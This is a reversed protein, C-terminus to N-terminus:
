LDLRAPPRRERAPRASTTAPLGPSPTRSAPPPPTTSTTARAAPPRGRRPPAAPAAAATGTHPKLRDVSVTQQQNGINLRFFKPGKEVVQYPGSYPAVLPGGQCGRRVYVLEAERLHMPVEEQPGQPVPRSPIQKGARQQDAVAPPTVEAAAPQAPLTLPAGYVM